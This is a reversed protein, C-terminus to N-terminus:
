ERVFTEDAAQRRMKLVFIAGDNDIRSGGNEIRGDNNDFISQM